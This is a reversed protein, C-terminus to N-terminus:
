RQVPLVATRHVFAGPPVPPAQVPSPVQSNWQPGQNGIPPAPTVRQRTSRIAPLMVPVTLRVVPASDRTSGSSRTIWVPPVMSSGQGRQMKSPVASSPTSPPVHLAPDRAPSGQSRLAEPSDVLRSQGGPPEGISMLRSVKFPDDLGVLKVIVSSLGGQVEPGPEQAHEVHLSRAPSGHRVSASQGMLPPFGPTHPPSRHRLPLLAPAGHVDDVEQGPPDQTAAPSPVFGFGHRSSVAVGISPERQM